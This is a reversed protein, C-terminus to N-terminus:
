LNLTLVVTPQKVIARGWDGTLEWAATGDLDVGTFTDINGYDFQGSADRAPPAGSGEFSIPRTSSVVLIGERYCHQEGPKAPQYEAHVPTLVAEIVFQLAYETPTVDLIWSDELYVHTLDQFAADYTLDASETVTRLTGHDEWTTM